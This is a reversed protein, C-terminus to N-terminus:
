NGCTLDYEILLVTGFKNHNKKLHGVKATYGKNLIQGEPNTGHIKESLDM